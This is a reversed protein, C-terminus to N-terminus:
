VGRRRHYRRPKRGVAYRHAHPYAHKYTYANINGYAHANIHAYSDTYGNCRAYAYIHACSDINAYINTYIHAKSDANVCIYADIQAYRYAQPRICHRYYRCCRYAVACDRYEAASSICCDYANTARRACQSRRM